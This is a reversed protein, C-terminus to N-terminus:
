DGCDQERYRGQTDKGSVPESGQGLRQGEERIREQHCRQKPPRPHVVSTRASRCRRPLIPTERRLVLLSRSGIAARQSPSAPARRQSRSSFTARAREARRFSPPSPREDLPHPRLMHRHAPHLPQLSHKRDLDLAAPATAPPQFHDRANLDPASRASEQGRSAACRPPDGAATPRAPAAATAARIM